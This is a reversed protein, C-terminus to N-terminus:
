RASIKGLAEAIATKVEPIIEVAQLQLLRTRAAKADPGIEGIVKVAGLRVGISDAAVARKLTPMMENVVKPGKIIKALAHVTKQRIETYRTQMVEMLLDPAASKAAPGIDGLASIAVLQLEFDVSKAVTKLADISESDDAGIKGLTRMALRKGELSETELLHAVAPGASKADPGIKALAKCALERINVDSDGLATTLAGVAGKADSRQDGLAEIVAKRVEFDSGSVLEALAPVASAAAHGLRGIAHAALARPEPDQSKLMELLIPMSDKSLFAKGTLAEAAAARVDHDDDSLRDKLVPFVTDRSESGLTGLSRIANRRLGPDSDKAARLLEPLAVGADHGLKGLAGAAYRRLDTNGSSKLADVLPRVENREPPGIEDLAKAAQQRVADNKDDLVLHMLPTVAKKADPGITGLIEAAKSRVNDDKHSLCVILEPVDNANGLTRVTRTSKHWVLQHERCAKEIFDRAETVDIFISVSNVEPGSVGGQTVAVLEGNDNVLPGGSDGHNTPSTTEVVQAEMELEKGTQELKVKWSKPYVTRVTGVTYNWMAGSVGLPCGVSHVTQSVSPSTAALALPEVGDPLKDCQVLALDRKSDRGVVTALIADGAMARRMYRKPDTVLKGHERMPFFVLLDKAGEVVHNNTLVLHNRLDVLSGSGGWLQNKTGEAFIFVVSKLVHEFVSKGASAHHTLVEPIDSKAAVTETRAANFALPPPPAPPLGGPPPASQEVYGSPPQGKQKDSKGSLAVVAVVVGILLVAVGAAIGGILLPMASSPKEQVLSKKMPRRSRRVDDEGDDDQIRRKRIGSDSKRSGSDSKRIGSESPAKSKSPGSSAGSPKPVVLRQGCESCAVTAGAKEESARLKMQCKPCRFAIM